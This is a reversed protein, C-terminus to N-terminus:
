EDPSDPPPSEPEDSGFLYHEVYTVGKLGDLGTLYMTHGSTYADDAADQDNPNWSLAFDRAQMAVEHAAAMTEEDFGAEQAAKRVKPRDWTHFRARAPDPETGFTPRPVSTQQIGAYPRASNVGQNSLRVSPFNTIM